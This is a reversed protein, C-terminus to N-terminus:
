STEGEHETRMWTRHDTDPRQPPVSGVPTLHTPRRPSASHYVNPHPVAHAPLPVAASAPVHAAPHGSWSQVREGKFPRSSRLLLVAAPAVLALFVSLAFFPWGTLHVAPEERWTTLRNIKEATRVSSATM